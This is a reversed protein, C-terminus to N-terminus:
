KFPVALNRPMIARIGTVTPKTLAHDSPSPNRSKKSPMGLASRTKISPPNARVIFPTFTAREVASTRFRTAKTSVAGIPTTRTARTLQGSSAAPLKVPFKLLNAAFWLCYSAMMAFARALPVDSHNATSPPTVYEDVDSRWDAHREIM